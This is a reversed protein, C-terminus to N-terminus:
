REQSTIFIFLSESSKSISSESGGSKVKTCITCRYSGAKTLNHVRNGKGYVKDQYENECDCKKIM